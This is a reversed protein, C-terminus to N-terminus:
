DRLLGLRWCAWRENLRLRLCDWDRTLRLRLCDRDRLLRLRLCNWLRNRSPWRDYGIILRSRGRRGYRRYRTLLVTLIFVAPFVLHHREFDVFAIVGLRLLDVREGSVSPFVNAQKGGSRISVQYAAKGRALYRRGPM